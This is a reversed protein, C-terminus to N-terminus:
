LLGGGGGGRTDQGVKIQLGQGQGQEGSPRPQEVFQGTRGGRRNKRTGYISM